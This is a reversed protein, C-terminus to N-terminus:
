RVGYVSHFQMVSLVGFFVKFLSLFRQNKTKIKLEQELMAILRFTNQFTFKKKFDSIDELNLTKLFLYQYNNIVLLSIIFFFFICM